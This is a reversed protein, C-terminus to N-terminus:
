FSSTDMGIRKENWSHGVEATDESDLLSSYPSDAQLPNRQVATFQAEGGRMRAQLFSIDVSFRSGTRQSGGQRGNAIVPLVLSTVWVPGESM